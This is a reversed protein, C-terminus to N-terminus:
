DERGRGRPNTLGIGFINDGEEEEKDAKTVAELVTRKMMAKIPGVVREIKGNSQPYYPTSLHHNIRLIRCLAKIIPNVFHTGHDSQFSIEPSADRTAAGEAWRRLWDVALIVVKNGAAIDELFPWAFDITTLNAVMLACGPVRDRDQNALGFFGRLETLMQPLRSRMNQLLARWVARLAKYDGKAAKGIIDDFYAKAVGNRFEGLMAKRKFVPPGNKIGFLM